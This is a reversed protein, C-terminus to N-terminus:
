EVTVVITRVPSPNYGPAVAIFKVITTATVAIPGKYVTSATTPNAGNTTYYVTAGGTAEAIAVTATGAPEATTGLATVTVTGEILKFTYNTAALTGAALSIPYTGPQSGKTATTTEVPKGTVVSATDGNVYGSTTYALTPIAADYAVSVSTATVTLVAKTATETFTAPTAVGSVTAKATLTGVATPIATVSATGNAGTIATASSFKLGTGSFTVTAGSVLDGKSDKAVVVFPLAFASGYVATQGSGSVTTVSAVTLKADVVLSVTASTSPAYNTDGSYSGVFTHTGAALTSLTFSASGSEVPIKVSPVGDISFTVSGTPALSGTTPKVTAGIAVSAGVTAPSPSVTLVTTDALPNNVVEALTASTSAAFNTDGSYTAVVKHTAADLTAISYSATGAALTEKVAAGGDISFSVTGTPTGTGATPKVVATFVVATGTKVTADSSTLTTATAALTAGKVTGTLTLAQSATAMNNANDTVLLSGTVTGAAKASPTFEVSINCSAGPALSFSASCDAPTGSGAVKTFNAPIAIGPSVAKLTGSGTNTLVISFKGDATDTAGPATPTPFVIANSSVTVKRVVYNGTDTIYIDGAKDLAISWPNALEAKTAPGGDGSYGGQGKGADYGSGAVTTIKGTTDVKRIVNNNSDSIYINGAGDAKVGSPQDLEASTAPGGDGTYGLSGSIGAVTSITGATDIKRVVSNFNDAFYLNGNSDVTLATPYCIEAATALGGDGTEACTGNGAITSIIGATNVKRIRQNTKDAIFLNGLADVAVDIPTFFKAKTAPGNDGSFGYSGATGAVTSIIGAPDVKRIVQNGSDAIYLNGAADFAVGTPGYLEANTALGGDGTDGVSTLTGAFVTLNGTSDLKNVVENGLDTFYVNGARDTAIGQPAFISASTAPGPDGGFGPSNNGAVTAINGPNLTAVPIGTFVSSCGQVRVVRNNNTDSIYVNCGSDVAVALPSSLGTGVEVCGGLTCTLDSAPVGLVRNNNTDAIYVNGQSDAAVGGPGSLGSGVPICDGLTCSLDFAPVRLVRNNGEDAIYINGAPDVAVGSPSKLAPVAGSAVPVCAGSACFVVDNAGTNGVILDGHSDVALGAPFSWSGAIPAGTYKGSALSYYLVSNGGEDTVYFNGASTAAVGFPASLGSAVTSQTYGSATATERLVSGTNSQAIYVNGSGDVAVGEPSSLGAAVITQQASLSAASAALGFVSLILLSVRQISALTSPATAFTM